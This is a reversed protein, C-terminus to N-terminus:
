DGHNKMIRALQRQLALRARRLRGEVSRESIGLEDAISRVSKGEIHFAELLQGPGNRLRALGWYILATADDNELPTATLVENLQMDDLSMPERRRYHNLLLNRAVTKLWALPSDPWPGSHWQRVARLYAEQTIDEALQQSGGARRAVFHYLPEVTDHYIRLIEEDRKKGERVGM